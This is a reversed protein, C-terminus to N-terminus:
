KKRTLDILEDSEKGAGVFHFKLTIHDPSLFQIEFGHVHGAQPSALNTVDVFSFTVSSSGPGFATAKLRPQNRAGCFHTMRLDNGDRHYVSTMTPTADVVLNEVVASENGTLYYQADMKGSAARAGTWTYTGTWEGALARLKDFAADEKSQAFLIGCFGFFALFLWFFKFKVDAEM